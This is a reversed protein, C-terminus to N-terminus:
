NIGAVIKEMGRREERSRNERCQKELREMPPSIIMRSNWM